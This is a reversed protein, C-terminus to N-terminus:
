IFFFLAHPDLFIAGLGVWVRFCALRDSEGPPHPSTIRYGPSWSEMASSYPTITHPIGDWAMSPFRVQNRHSEQTRDPM